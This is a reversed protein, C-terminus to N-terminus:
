KNANYAVVLPWLIQQPLVAIAGAGFRTVKQLKRGLQSKSWLQHPARKATFPTFIKEVLNSILHPM